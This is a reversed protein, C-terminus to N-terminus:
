KSESKQIILQFQVFLYQVMEFVWYLIDPFIGLKLYNGFKDLTIGTKRDLVDEGLILYWRLGQLHGTIIIIHGREHSLKEATIEDVTHVTIKM